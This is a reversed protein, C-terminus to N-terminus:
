RPRLELLNARSIQQGFCPERAFSVHGVAARHDQECERRGWVGCGSPDSLRRSGEVRKGRQILDFPRSILVDMGWIMQAVEDTRALQTNGTLRNGAQRKVKM